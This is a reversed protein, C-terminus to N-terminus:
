SNISRRRMFLVLCFITIPVMGFNVPLFGDDTETDEKPKEASFDILMDVFNSREDIAIEFSFDMIMKSVFSNAIDVSVNFSISYQYSAVLGTTTTASNNETLFADLMFSSGPIHEVQLDGIFPFEPEEFESTFEEYSTDNSTAFLPYGINDIDVRESLLPESFQTNDPYGILSLGVVISAFLMFNRWEDAFSYQELTEGDITETSNIMTNTLSFLWDEREVASISIVEIKREVPEGQLTESITTGNIKTLFEYRNTTLVFTDGLELNLPVADPSVAGVGQSGSSILMASVLVIMRFYLSRKGYIKILM